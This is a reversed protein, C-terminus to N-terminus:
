DQFLLNSAFRLSQYKATTKRQWMENSERNLKISKQIHTVHLEKQTPSVKWRLLIFQNFLLQFKIKRLEYLSLVGKEEKLTNKNKQKM